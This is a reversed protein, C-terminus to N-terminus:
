WTYGPNKIELIEQIRHIEVKRHCFGMHAFHGHNSPTGIFRIQFFRAPRHRMSITQNEENPLQFDSPFHAAWRERVPLLGWFRRGVEIVFRPVEWHTVYIGCFESEIDPLITM